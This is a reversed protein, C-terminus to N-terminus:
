REEGKYQLKDATDPGVDRRFGKMVPQVLGGKRYAYLYEIELVDGVKVPPRGILSVSAVETGDALAITASKKGDRGIATVIFSGSAKFKWKMGDGGSSPRGTQYKASKRKFVVGEAGGSHCRKLLARKEREDGATEILFLCADLGTGKSGGFRSSIGADFLATLGRLRNECSYGRLDIGNAQLIDLLVLREGIVEADVITNSFCRKLAAVQDKTLTVPLNSRSFARVENKVHILARVGDEKVQMLWADNRVLAMGESEGIANLLMPRYDREYLEPTAAAVAKPSAAPPAVAAADAGQRYGNALKERLLKGYEQEAKEVNSGEYKPYAKMTGGRRGGYGIVKITGALAELTVTYVKDSNGENCYLTESRM